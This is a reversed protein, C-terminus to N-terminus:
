LRSNFHDLQSSRTSITQISSVSGATKTPRAMVNELKLRNCAMLNEVKSRNCAMVNEVNPRNWAMVNEVKTQEM